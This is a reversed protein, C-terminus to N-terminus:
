VLRHPFNSNILKEIANAFEIDSVNVLIGTQENIIQERGAPIDSCIIPKCLIKAENIALGYSELRSTQVYLDCSKLLGYPNDINGLLVFCEKMNLKDIAKNLIERQNGDGAVYWKFKLGRDALICAANLAIDIGKEEGLRGITLIKFIDDNKFKNGIASKHLIEEKDVICYVVTTKTKIEPFFNILNNKAAISVPFIGTYKEYYPRLINKEELKIPQIGHVFFYKRKAIVNDVVYFVDIDFHRFSIAVDYKENLIPLRQATHKWQEILPLNKTLLKGARISKIFHLPHLFISKVTMFSYTYHPIQRINIEKPIESVWGRAQNNFDLVWLDIEYKKDVVKKLMEVLAKTAGNMSLGRTIIAVKKM